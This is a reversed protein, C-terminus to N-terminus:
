FYRRSARKLVAISLSPDTFSQILIGRMNCKAEVLHHTILHFPVTPPEGWGKLPWKDWVPLPWLCSLEYFKWDRCLAICCLHISLAVWSIWFWPPRRRALINCWRSQEQQLRIFRGAVSLGRRGVMSWNVWYWNSLYVAMIWKLSSLFKYVTEM